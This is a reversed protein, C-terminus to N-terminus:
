QEYTGFVVPKGDKVMQRGKAWVATINMQDDLLTFDADFGAQIHGKGKLLLHDAVNSTVLPLITELPIGLKCVAEKIAKPICDEFAVAIKELTGDSRFQPMSGYADSSMTVQDLPVGKELLYKVCPAAALHPCEKSPAKSATLDIIGGAKVFDIAEELLRPNKNCHTPRFQTIPIETTDAIKRMMSLGEKGHGMHLHVIGAKGSLMGGVRAEAALQAIQTQTPASSRHDSIAVEGAGVVKDICMIDKQLSGTITVLPLGYSGSYIWTSLGEEELGKAKALLSVMNRAIGDTGLIGVVTTVGNRTIESLKAEPTRTAFSGEGGGGIIHVHQDIFGPVLNLGSCDVVEAPVGQLKIEDAMYLIKGEGVLIDKKGEKAPSYVSAQKFVQLMSIM